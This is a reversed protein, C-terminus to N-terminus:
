YENSLCKNETTVSGSKISSIKLAIVIVLLFPRLKHNPGRIISVIECPNMKNRREIKNTM